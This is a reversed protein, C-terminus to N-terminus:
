VKIKVRNSGSMGSGALDDNKGDSDLMDRKPRNEHGDNHLREETSKLIESLMQSYSMGIHCCMKAMHGDWCWGPNPNVELLKPVGNGDLRWDLRVYDRCELRESLRVSWEIIDKETQDPLEAKISTLKAYPSDPCWKAEYGCIRPLDEPLASYDEEMIPLVTYSTPSTGIIGITLDKGTLLEEVLIPKDYGFQQRIEQIANILEEAAYAVSRTTIGFSSDGLNPKVIVPFDFTLEFTSDEPRVLFAEPVPIGMEKAIGRVLSKDYCFALCQPGAGTYGFGLMELVAPVHLEKRPDNIFGEDCLNFIYDTKDSLRVLDRILSDHSHLFTFRYGPLERLASKMRDITYFDDDDFVAEPKLPDPKGPDGM